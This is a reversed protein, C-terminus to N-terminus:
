VQPSSIESSQCFLIQSKCVYVTGTGATAADEILLVVFNTASVFLSLSLCVTNVTQSLCESKGIAFKGPNTQSLLSDFLKTTSANIASTLSVTRVRM